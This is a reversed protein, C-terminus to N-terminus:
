RRLGSHRGPLVPRDDLSAVRFGQLVQEDFSIFEEVLECLSTAFEFQLTSESTLFSVPEACQGVVEPRM